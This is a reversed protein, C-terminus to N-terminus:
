KCVCRDIQALCVRCVFLVNVVINERERTSRELKKGTQVEQDLVVYIFLLNFMYIIKYLM